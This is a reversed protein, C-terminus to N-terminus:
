LEATSAISDCSMISCLECPFPSRTANTTVTIVMNGGGGSIIIITIITIIFTISVIIVVVVVVDVIIIVICSCSWGIVIIGVISDSNQGGICKIASFCAM